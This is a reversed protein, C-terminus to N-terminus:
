KQLKNIFSKTMFHKRVGYIVSKDV